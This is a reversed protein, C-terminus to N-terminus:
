GQERNETRVDVLVLQGRKVEELARGLAPGLDAPDKIPGEGGVGFNRAVGAYDIEPNEIRQGIWANELPRERVRALHNQHAEDNFYSRNNNIIWLSPIHYHAATWLAQVSELFEGDGLIAVPVKGSDKLALASGLAAGTGAGVAGGGGGGM